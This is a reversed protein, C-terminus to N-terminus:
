EGGKLWAKVNEKSGHSGHPFYNHVFRVLQLLIEQSVSDAKCVATLLDNELVARLFGGPEQRLELYGVLGRMLAPHRENIIMGDHSSAIEDRISQLREATLIPKTEKGTM